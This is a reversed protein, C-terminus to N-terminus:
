PGAPASFTQDAMFRAALTEDDLRRRQQILRRKALQRPLGAVGALQGLLRARAAEGRFNQLADLAIHLQAGVIAPLNRLLLATPMNKAIMWITNRGVYYSAMVGGGTASLHHYIRAAPAFIVRYGALQARFGLDVDELYMWFAEDFGGLQQWVDRRFASGGGSASFIEPYGDYQGHDDEWVGRNRPIGDSGLLDGTTHIKTREDFLLLKSAVIAAQPAAVIAKALEALWSQEPETDNNLLVVFRGHAADGGLNCSRVFGLNRRNVLIRVAPYHEELFAVSHDTSADDVLIVEFDGFTQQHLAAMLTPLFQMGNLNPIVISFFPVPATRLEGYDRQPRPTFDEPAARFSELNLAIQHRMVVRNEERLSGYTEDRSVPNTGRQEGTSTEGRSTGGTSTEGTSTEGTSTEGTSTEGTSAHSGRVKKPPQEGSTADPNVSEASRRKPQRTRKPGAASPRSPPKTEDTM